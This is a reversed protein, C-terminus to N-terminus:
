KEIKGFFEKALDNEASDVIIGSLKVWIPDAMNSIKPVQCCSEGEGWWLRRSQDLEVATQLM